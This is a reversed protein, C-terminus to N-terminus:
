HVSKNLAELLVSKGLAFGSNCTSKGHPVLLSITSKSVSSKTFISKRRTKEGALKDYGTCDGTWTIMAPMLGDSGSLISIGSSLTGLVSLIGTSSSLVSIGLPFKGFVSLGTSGSTFTGFMSLIGTSGSLVSIGPTFAGFVSFIGTSGSGDM